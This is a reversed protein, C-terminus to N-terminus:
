APTPERQIAIRTPPNAFHAERTAIQPADPLPPIWGRFHHSWGRRRLETSNPPSRPATTPNQPTGIKDRVSTSPESSKAPTEHKDRQHPLSVTFILALRDIANRQTANRQTANRQTANRQTANRQPATRHPATRQTANRQTANRQM